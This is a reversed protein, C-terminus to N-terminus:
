GENRLFARAVAWPSRGELVRKDKPAARLAQDTRWDLAYRLLVVLLLTGVAPLILGLFGQVEISGQAWTPSIFNMAWRSRLALVSLGITLLIFLGLNLLYRDVMRTQFKLPVFEEMALSYYRMASSSLEMFFLFCLGFALAEELPVSAIPSSVATFFTFMGSTIIHTGRMRWIGYVGFLLSALYFFAIFLQELSYLFTPLGLFLAVVVIIAIAILIGHRAKLDFKMVKKWNTMMKDWIYPIACLVAGVFLGLVTVLTIPVGLLVSNARVEFANPKMSWNLFFLGALAATAIIQMAVVRVLMSRVLHLTGEEWKLLDGSPGVRQGDM